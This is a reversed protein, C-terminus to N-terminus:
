EIVAIREESPTQHKRTTVYVRIPEYYDAMGNYVVDIDGVVNQTDTLKKILESIQM